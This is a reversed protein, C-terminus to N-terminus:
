DSHSVNGNPPISEKMRAQWRLIKESESEETNEDSGAEDSGAEESIEDSGSEESIEGSGTEETIESMEKGPTSRPLIIHSNSDKIDSVISSYDQNFIHQD